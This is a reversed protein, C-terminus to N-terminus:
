REELEKIRAAQLDVLTLWNELDQRINGICSYYEEWRDGGTPHGGAGLVLLRRRFEVFRAVVSPDKMNLDFM